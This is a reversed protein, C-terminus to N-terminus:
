PCSWGANILLYPNYNIKIQFFLFLPFLTKMKQKLFLLPILFIRREPFNDVDRGRSFAPQAPFLSQKLCTPESLITSEWANSCIVLFTGEQKYLCKWFVKLYTNSSSNWVLETLGGNKSTFFQTPILRALQPMETVAVWSSKKWGRNVGICPSAECWQRWNRAQNNNVRSHSTFNKAPRIENPQETCVYMSLGFSLCAIYMFM